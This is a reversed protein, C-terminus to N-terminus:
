KANPNTPEKKPHDCDIDVTNGNGTNASSCDGSAEAGNPIAQQKQNESNQSESYLHASVQWFAGGITGSLLIVGVLSLMPYKVGLAGYLAKMCSEVLDWKM